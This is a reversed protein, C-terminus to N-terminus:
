NKKGFVSEGNYYIYLFGDENKSDLKTAIQLLAIAEELNKKKSYIYTGAIARIVEANKNKTLKLEDAIFKLFLKTQQADLTELQSFVEEVKGEELLNFLSQNIDDHM